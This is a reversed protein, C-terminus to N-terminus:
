RAVAFPASDVTTIGGAGDPLEARLGYTGDLTPGAGPVVHTVALHFHWHFARSSADIEADYTPETTLELWFAQGDSTVPLGNPRLVPNGDKTLTVVPAGFWPDHGAVVWEVEDTPGYTPAVETVVAGFGVAEPAQYADFTGPLFPEVPTTTGPAAGHAWDWANVAQEALYAGQHPGWLAGSAEYGGQWWDDELISYGSYDQAYGVFLLDEGWRERIDGLVQEALLTGPEGPFTVFGLDGLHGATFETRDPAPYEETFPLCADDLDEVITAPDCDEVSATCYVAGYPYTWTTADYDLVDRSLPVRFTKSVIDPADSWVLGDALTAHVADAVTSGVEEFRDFGDPQVSGPQLAIEPSGPSMDAGWSNFEAVMVPHDFRDEVAQEIGGSVDQSLTLDELGLVTGHVAYAMALGVVEGEREVAVIPLTGNEYTLGDDCRRDDHGDGSYAFGYGVRGPALDALAAEVADAMGNVMRGYFEPFFADAILNFPGGSDIVRGPGSHTHTAGIILADDLNRGLRRELELVVARRLQQFVGVTDSRLLILEFGPGRSVAIARFDPHDHIRTTAPYIEAFPSESSIGSVFGGYGVTGIGLPVPMRVRAVGVQLPGPEPADSVVPEEDGNCALATWLLPLM